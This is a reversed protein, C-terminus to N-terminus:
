QRCPMLIYGVCVLINYLTMLFPAALRMFYPKNYHSCCIIYYESYKPPAEQSGHVKHILPAGKAVDGVSSPISTSSRKVALSLGLGEALQIQAFKAINKALELDLM